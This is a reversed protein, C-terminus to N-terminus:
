VCVLKRIYPPVKKKKKKKVKLALATTLFAFTLAKITLCNRHFFSPTASQSPEQNPITDQHQIARTRRRVSDSGKGVTCVEKRRKQGVFCPVVGSHDAGGWHDQVM